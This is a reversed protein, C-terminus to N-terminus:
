IAIVVVDTDVTRIMVKTFGRKAADYAHLILRTDAEEQKCPSLNSFDELSNNCLVLEGKTSIIEGYEPPITM